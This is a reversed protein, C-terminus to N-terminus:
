WYWPASDTPSMTPWTPSPPRWAPGGYSPLQKTLLNLLTRPRQPYRSSTFADLYCVPWDALM